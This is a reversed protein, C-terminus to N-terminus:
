YPQLLILVPLTSSVTTTIFTLQTCGYSQYPARRDNEQIFWCTSNIRHGPSVQPVHQCRDLLRALRYHKSWVPTNLIIFKSSKQFVTTRIQLLMIGYSTKTRLLWMRICTFLINKIDMTLIIRGDISVETKESKSWMKFKLMTTSSNLGKLSWIKWNELSWTYWLPLWTFKHPPLVVTQM